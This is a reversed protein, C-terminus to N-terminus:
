AVNANNIIFDLAKDIIIDLIIQNILNNQECFQRFEKVPRRYIQAMYHIQGDIEQPTVKLNEQQAIKQLVYRVTLNKVIEKEDKKNQSNELEQQILVKPMELQYSEGIKEIVEKAHQEKIGRQKKNTLSLKIDEKVADLSEKGIDKALENDLSPLSKQHLNKIKISFSAKKGALETKFYDAPFTVEITKSDDKKMGVIQSEFEDLLQKKGLEVTYDKATGGEFAKGDITGEFDITAVYGNQLTATADAPVLQALREQLLKLEQDIEDNSINITHKKLSMGKYEKLTVDPYVTVTFSYSYSNGQTIPQADFKPDGLPFIQNDNIAKLYSDNIAFNLAEFAIDQPYYKELINNPTKGPRFGKIKAKERIKNYSKVFSKSVEEASLEVKVKKETASLNELTIQM